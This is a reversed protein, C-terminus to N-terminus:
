NTYALLQAVKTQSVKPESLTTSLAALVTPYSATEIPLYNGIGEFRRYSDVLRRPKMNQLVKVKVTNKGGGPGIIRRKNLKKRIPAPTSTKVPQLKPIKSPAARGSPLNRKM